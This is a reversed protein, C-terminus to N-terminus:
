PIGSATPLTPNQRIQNILDPLNTQPEPPANPTNLPQTLLPQKIVQNRLPNVTENRLFEEYSAGSQRAYREYQLRNCAEQSMEKSCDLVETVSTNSHSTETAQRLARDSLKTAAVTISSALVSSLLVPLATYILRSNMM